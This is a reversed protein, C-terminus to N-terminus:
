PEEDEDEDSSEARYADPAVNPSSSRSSSHRRRKGAAKLSLPKSFAPHGPAPLADDSDSDSICIVQGPTFSQQSSPPLSPRPEDDSDSSLEIVDSPFADKRKARCQSNLLSLRTNVRRLPLSSLHRFIISRLTGRDNISDDKGKLNGGWWQCMSRGDGLRM